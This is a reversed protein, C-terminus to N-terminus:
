QQSTRRNWREIAKIRAVAPDKDCYFASAMCDRGTCNVFYVTHKTNPNTTGISFAWRGCHPCPKLETSGLAHAVDEDSILFDKEATVPLDRGKQHENIMAMRENINM